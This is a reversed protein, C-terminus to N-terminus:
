PHTRETLDCFFFRKRWTFSPLEKCDNCITAQGSNFSGHTKNRLPLGEVSLWLYLPHEYKGKTKVSPHKCIPTRNFDCASKFFTRVLFLRNFQFCVLNNYNSFTVGHYAFYDRRDRESVWQARSYLQVSFQIWPKQKIKQNWSKGKLILSLCPTSYTRWNGWRLHLVFAKLERSLIRLWAM